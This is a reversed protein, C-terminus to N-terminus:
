RGVDSVGEGDALQDYVERLFISVTLMFQEPKLGLGGAPPHEHAAQGHLGDHLGVQEDSEADTLELLAPEHLDVEAGLM